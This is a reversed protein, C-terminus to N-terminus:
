PGGGGGGSGGASGSAAAVAAQAAAAAAVAAPSGAVIDPAQSDVPLSAASLAAAPMPQAPMSARTSGGGGGGGGKGGRVNDNYSTIHEAITEELAARTSDMAPWIEGAHRQVFAAALQPAADGEHVALQVVRGSELLVPLKFLLPPLLGQKTLQEELLVVVGETQEHNLSNASAFEAAVHELVEGDYLALPM